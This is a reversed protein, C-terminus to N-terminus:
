ISSRRGVHQQHGEPVDRRAKRQLPQSSPVSSAPWLAFAVAACFKPWPARFVKGSDSLQLYSWWPVPFQSSRHKWIDALFGFLFRDGAWALIVARGQGPQSRFVYCGRQLHVVRVEKSPLQRAQGEVGTDARPVRSSGAQPMRDRFCRVRHQRPM